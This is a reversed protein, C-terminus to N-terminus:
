PLPVRSSQYCLLGPNVPLPMSELVLSKPNLDWTLQQNAAHGQTFSRM